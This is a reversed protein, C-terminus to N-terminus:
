HVRRRDIALRGAEKMGTLWVALFAIKSVLKLLYTLSTPIPQTDTHFPPYLTDQCGCIVFFISFLGLQVM